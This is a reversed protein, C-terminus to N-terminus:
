FSPYSTDAKSRKMLVEKWGDTGNLPDKTKESGVVENPAALKGQSEPNSDPVRRSYIGPSVVLAANPDTETEILTDHVGLLNKFTVTLTELPLTMKRTGMYETQLSVSETTLISGALEKAAKETALLINWM